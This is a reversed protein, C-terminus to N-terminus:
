DKIIPLGRAIVNAKSKRMGHVTFGVIFERDSRQCLPNGSGCNMCQIEGRYEAPCQVVNHGAPTKFSIWKRAAKMKGTARDRKESVEGTDSPVITVVPAMGLAMLEDAHAVNNSSLNVTFGNDNAYRIARENYWKTPPKHTYTFGKGKIATNAKVLARLQQFNIRSGRGPLDGAVAYRWLSGVPLTVLQKLFERFPVGREGKSVKNWHMGLPGLDAYCGEDAYPCEPSCTCESIVVTAIPGTKDNKSIRTLAFLMDSIM